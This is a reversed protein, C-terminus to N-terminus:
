DCLSVVDCIGLGLVGVWGEGRGWSLGLGEVLFLFYFVASVVEGLNDWQVEFTSLVMRTDQGYIDKGSNSPFGGLPQM